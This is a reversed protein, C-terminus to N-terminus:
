SFISDEKGSGSSGLTGENKSKLPARKKNKLEYNQLRYEGGAEGGGVWM